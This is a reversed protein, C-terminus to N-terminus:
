LMVGIRHRVPPATGFSEVTVPVQDLPLHNRLDRNLEHIASAQFGDAKQQDYAEESKVAMIMLKIAALNNLLVVDNDNAVPIFQYKVYALISRAQPTSNTGTNTVQNCHCANHFRNVISHQYQPTTEDPAYTACNLLVNNVADYQFLRVKGVTPDKMVRTITRITMPTSAFPAAFTIVVGPMWVPPTGQLSYIEQGNSDIGYITITKGIDAQRDIYARIYVGANCSIPNFVSSLGDNSVVNAGGNFGGHGGWGWDFAWGDRRNPSIDGGNLPMFEYWGGMVTRVRHCLNMALVTGVERPWTICGGYVCGQMKGVSGWFNGYSMLREVAQNVFSTFQPSDACVGAINIVGSSKIQGLTLYPM